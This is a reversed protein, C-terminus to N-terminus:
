DNAGARRLLERLGPYDAPTIQVKHSVARGSDGQAVADLYAQADTIWRSGLLHVGHAFLTDPLCGASPGILAVHRARPCSQRVATLTGNLLVTATAVVQSSDRLAAPDLTVRWGPGHQGLWRPDLELITLVGGAQVIPQILPKFFGVMGVPEGPVIPQLGTAAGAKPPVYGARDMLWRSLANVAALGLARALPDPTTLGQALTLADVGPLTAAARELGQRVQGFGDFSLGLSGDALALACFSGRNDAIADASPRPGLHVAAVRPPKLPPLHQQLLGLLQSMPDPMSM